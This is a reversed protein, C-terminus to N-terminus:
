AVVEVELSMSHIDKEIRNVCKTVLALSDQAISERQLDKIRLTFSNGARISLDGVAELSIKKTEKNREGLLVNAQNQLQSSNLDADTVTEVIQLKGWLAINGDHKATYIERKGKDKNERMVKVSNAADEISGSFDYDTMLSEDGIVLKTIGRNLNFFELTGYNDWVGYRVKQNKRTSAIADELMSFYTHKDEVVAACNYTSNDLVKYPLGQTQCIKKFRSSATSAPFVLTDENGLFKLNDYATFEWAPGKQKGRGFVKGKFINKGNIKLEIIDGSRIFVKPDDLMKFEMKGPQYLLNTGWQLGSSIESIDYMQNNRVSTVFMQINM